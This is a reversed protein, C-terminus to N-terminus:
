APDLAASAERCRRADLPQGAEEFLVAAEALLRAAGAPDDEARALHARAERVAAQWATGQWLAASREAEVLWSRAEELRGGEACAIAAPVAIMVHCVTCSVAQDSAEAAEDVVALAAERDPASAV